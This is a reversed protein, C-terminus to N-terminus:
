VFTIEDDVVKGTITTGPMFSGSLIMQALPNEIWRQIARKLPRAGYVPDYGVAILKDLAEPSLTMSLEREALRKRLRGLQIDTIGAIQDRALPEFIVVEDIRNVFEPRFHTGVADMVAARQAERDGVLEQIQASGLNSTMVIVTNRFDVTRGHSDTLRGDELVQLLINFVDSHAKEVEDLLILSYPKRRVAETLYGGEEYGIYGPPAGILRAVSHKEMFESMDIRVMAEETDFLFEALAKCLETKGVGTPGLFMFSGSPRNPDSLGARSRRVANSVAVVAEEQGIVRNHLLTEMRLLKEREGELMKSVPIGTWKSVVEAIEEETVKSRLLQNEPKGHQDVMQLSRELDPIIGYQLEAMRNLDGRRRAAELEQRSQEIKQQIQASGTVEAKESTWIEELDAYELELRQIEGQLKELRKIAAEDKEKKLAQAEVKLQILRRELRDLVEPKSDIEMRIRSAAEDILDIAKDPLQRDTIYRHSLKAAAIIAGDTIAVKHHVEYREKLGRLIAITDEESPEDVLVKQFRRELAADKEIYQRYENLTTAGVCHLEGRALAPKLMNGADMSGEGKGAGVMTHLEDIFLIIQGEQKSLENLLSKLREEFEGRYKAGAILAGMDLSLLRKGRLGDPVEGNIIRQALGEAIATKGVGPEGILVPNNKTRRQLVQITRRIEDDRGIVPDLKGEEARKTLDVTYKDLAQRSEEVNPDNVAGEGRLNNIANELAKKSVGQGLLLKGLKSNEDMAALLVLESSIFQDGKQQALRDAQNLLRALDQSMNVDGTPNQIKPLRDLEASLEKRLSNVDFGVQLLLPKISGGQQELLAQMLHAPEIAPHDLGVALSQSDSLALQLKSTLRDIRM